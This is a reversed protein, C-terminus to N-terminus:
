STLKLSQLILGQIIVAHSCARQNICLRLGRFILWCVNPISHVTKRTAIICELGFSDYKSDFGFESMHVSPWFRYGMKQCLTSKGPMEACKHKRHFSEACKHKRRFSEACKHKRRFAMTTGIARGRQWNHQLRSACFPLEAEACEKACM